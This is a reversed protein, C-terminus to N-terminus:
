TPLRLESVSFAAGHPDAIVARRFGPTDHPAALAAGGLTAATTAARDADRVWFDVSWMSPADDGPAAIMVGVVDSPVPQQPEGGVYGPLRWLTVAAGGINLAETVWGFVDGYFAEAASQDRTSLVSMAWASPENVIQAGSRQRAEWLCFTAGAPDAAIAMRGAPPADFPGAIVSGGASTVRQAAEDASDVAIYTAWSPVPPAGGPPLSSVGAVDKGRLQAVYYRGPPDTPMEGPGIFEWGFLEGYFGLAADVDPQATDVWCPVGVPYQERESM